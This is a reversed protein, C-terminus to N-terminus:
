FIIANNVFVRYEILDKPFIQISDPHVYKGQEELLHIKWNKAQQQTFELKQFIGSAKVHHNKSSLPFVISGDKVKLRIIENSSTDQINIWCGRMPCVELIIGEIAIENNIYIDPSLLLENITITTNIAENTGYIGIPNKINLLDKESPTNVKYACNAFLFIILSYLLYTKAKLKIFQYIQILKSQGNM